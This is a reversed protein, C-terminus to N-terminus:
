KSQDYSLRKYLIRYVIAVAGMGWEAAQRLSTIAKSLAILGRRTNPNAREYEGEKLPSIIKGFMENTAPFATDAIVGHGPAKRNEILLKELFTRSM